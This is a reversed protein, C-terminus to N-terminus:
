EHQVASKLKGVYAVSAILLGIVTVSIAVPSFLVLVGAFGGSLAEGTNALTSFISFNKGLNADTSLRQINTPLAVDVFAGFAGLVFCGLLIATASRVCAPLVSLVLGYLCWYLMLSRTSFDRAIKGFVAAGAIAGFATLSMAYGVVSDPFGGNKLMAPILIRLAAGVFLICASSYAITIFLESKAMVSVLNQGFEGYLRRLTLGASSGQSVHDAPVAIRWVCLASLLYTAADLMLVHGPSAILAVAVGGLAPGVLGGIEGAIQTMGNAAPLNEARVLSPIAAQFAPQFITRMATMLMGVLALSIPGAHDTILLACFSSTVMMRAFDAYLMLSKRPLRDSLAGGLPGLMLYPIFRFFYIIGAHAVGNNTVKLVIIIFVFEHVGDGIRSLLNGGLLVSFPKEQLLMKIM